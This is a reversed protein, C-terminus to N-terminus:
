IKKEEFVLLTETKSIYRFSTLHEILFQQLEKNDKTYVKIMYDYQGSIHYLETVQPLQIIHTTFQDIIERNHTSLAIQIIATTTFGIKNYDLNAAYGTIIKKDELKKVRELTSSPTLGIMESLKKNSIRGNKKLIDIIMIDINDM